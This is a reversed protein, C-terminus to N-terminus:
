LHNSAKEQSVLQWFLQEYRVLMLDVFEAVIDFGRGVVNPKM